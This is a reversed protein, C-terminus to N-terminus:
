ALHLRSPTRQLPMGVSLLAGGVAAAPRLALAVFHMGVLFCTACCCGVCDAVVIQHRCAVAAVWLAVVFPVVVFPSAM